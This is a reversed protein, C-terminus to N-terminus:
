GKGKMKKRIKITGKQKTMTGYDYNELKQM